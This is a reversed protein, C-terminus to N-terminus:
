AAGKPNTVQVLLGDLDRFMVAGPAEDPEITAGRDKLMKAIAGRDYAAVALCFHDVGPGVGVPSLGLRGSGVQFWIRLPITTRQPASGFVKQYFAASKEM